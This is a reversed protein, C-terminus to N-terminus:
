AQSSEEPRVGHKSAPRRYRPSVAVYPRGFLRKLLIVEGTDNGEIRHGIWQLVCVVVVLGVPRWWLVWAAEILQIVALIGALPLLPITVAHIVRSAPHQHRMLWNDLWAPMAAHYHPSLDAVVFSPVVAACQAGSDFQCTASM